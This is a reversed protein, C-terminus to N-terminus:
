ILRKFGYIRKSMGINSLEEVTMGNPKIYRVSPESLKEPKLIFIKDGAAKMMKSVKSKNDKFDGFTLCRGICARVCAPELGLTVRHACLTCAQAVNKEKSFQIAGYPCAPICKKVGGEQDVCANCKTAAILVLGDKNKSIATKPCSEVCPPNVCHMSHVHLHQVNLDPYIGKTVSRVQNWALGTTGPRDDIHPPLDNEQKCAVVCVGCGVCTGIDVLIGYQKDM